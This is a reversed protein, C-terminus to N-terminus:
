RSWLGRVIRVIFVWRMDGKPFRRFLVGRHKLFEEPKLERAIKSELDGNKKKLEAVEAELQGVKKALAENQERALAVREKLIAASGHETILREIETFISM